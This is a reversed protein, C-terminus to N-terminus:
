QNEITIRWINGFVHPTCVCVSGLLADTSLKARSIILFISSVPNYAIGDMLISLCVASENLSDNYSRDKGKRRRQREEQKIVREVKTM